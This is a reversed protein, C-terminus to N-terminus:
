TVKCGAKRLIKATTSKNKETQAKKIRLNRKGQKRRFPDDAEGKRATV